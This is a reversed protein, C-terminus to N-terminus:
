NATDEVAKRAQEVAAAMADLAARQRVLRAALRAAERQKLALENLLDDRRKELTALERRIEEGSRASQLRKKLEAARDSDNTFVQIFTPNGYLQAVEEVAAQMKQLMEEYRKAARIDVDSEVPEGKAPRSEVKPTQGIGPQTFEPGATCPHCVLLTAIILSTQTTTM